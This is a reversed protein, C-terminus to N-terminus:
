QNGSSQQVEAETQDADKQQQSLDNDVGADPQPAPVEGATTTTDPAKPLGDKGSNDALSKLGADMTERFHNHMEQLDNADVAASAGVACEEQKSSRVVVAVNNDSDIDDGTREIIDGASLSCDDGNDTTVDIATAVVFIKFKPNLAPPAEDGSAAATTQQSNEAASKEDAIQQKVEDALQQKLEPSLKPQAAAGAAALAAFGDLGTYVSDLYGAILSDSSWLSASLNQSQAFRFPVPLTRANLRAEYAARLNESIMYDTLWSSATPYAPYPQYYYNYYGYWPDNYYGWRYYVPQPWPNYAWGYYVPHYYYAPAYGYYRAGHYYYGRYAYAYRRGGVYYTRQVYARGGRNFYPREAYGRGHGMSVIRRGNHETVIRREGHLGHEIKMNHAEITRVKGGRFSAHVTAGSKTKIERTTTPPGRHAAAAGHAASANHPNNAGPANPGHANTTGHANNAGPGTGHTNNAGVGTKAGNNMGPKSQMTNNGHATNPGTNTHGATNSGPAGTPHQPNPAPPKPAGPANHPASPPPSSKAPPPPSKKNNNSQAVAFASILLVVLILVPKGLAGEGRSLSM